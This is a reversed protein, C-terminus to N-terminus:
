KKLSQLQYINEIFLISDMLEPRSKLISDHIRKGKTPQTLSDMYHRFNQINGYEETTVMIFPQINEDDAKGTHQPIKIPSISFSKSKHSILSEAILYLSYGGSLLFFMVLLFKKVRGSLREIQLQMFIACQEQIKITKNVIGIAIKDQADNEIHDKQSRKHKFSLFM